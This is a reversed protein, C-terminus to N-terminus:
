TLAPGPAGHSRPSSRWHVGAGEGRDDDAQGQEDIEDDADSAIMTTGRLRWGVDAVAQSSAIKKM